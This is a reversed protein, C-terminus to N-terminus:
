LPFPLVSHFPVGLACGRHVSRGRSVCSSLDAGIFVIGHEEISELGTQILAERGLISNQSDPRAGHYHLLDVAYDWNVTETDQANHMATVKRRAVVPLGCAIARYIIFGTRITSQM